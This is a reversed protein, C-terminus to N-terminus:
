IYIYIYDCNIRVIETTTQITIQRMSKFMTGHTNDPEHTNLTWNDNRDCAPINRMYAVAGETRSYFFFTNASVLVLSGTTNSLKVFLPAANKLWQAYECIHPSIPEHLMVIGTWDNDDRRVIYLYVFCLMIDFTLQVSPIHIKQPAVFRVGTYDAKVYVHKSHQHLRTNTCVIPAHKNYTTCVFVCAFIIIFDYLCFAFWWIWFQIDGCKKKKKFTDDWSM